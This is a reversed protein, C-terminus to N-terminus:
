YTEIIAAASNTTSMLTHKNM